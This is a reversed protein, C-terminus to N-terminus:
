RSAADRFRGAADCLEIAVRQIVGSWDGIGTQRFLRATPYWPSDDRDLLWRWDPVHHLLIWVPKGLAGALHVVSTDSSIVLDLHSIIAATDAFSEIEEGLPVVGPHRRLIEADGDRLDKQLAFFQVGSQALLPLMRELGISRMEDHHFTPNGAWNIGVKLGAANALRPRWKALHAAPASLYPVEAPLNELTVDLAQPLGMLPCYLDFAPSPEDLQTLTVGEIQELLPRMAPPADLIVRAGRAIVPRVFRAAMITDGHGQESHLLLTKGRIDERGTWQPRGCAHWHPPTQTTHWRREYDPWGERWRGLQLHCLGRNWAPEHYDPQVALARAFDALADDIRGLAMLTTGHNYIAKAYDPRLAIARALPTLAAEFRGLEYLVTGQNYFAEAYDPKLAIAKEYDPLAEEHLGLQQRLNGRNNFTDANDPKLALARDYDALAADAQGMDQYVNGRNNVAEVLNPSLSIALDLDALAEDLRGLDRLVSGRCNLIASDREGKLAIAKDYSALAEDFRKLRKLANGRNLHADAVRSNIKLAADIQRVAELCNGRQYAIVGLLHQCDFSGPRHDLVRRYLQEAEGLLGARHFALAQAFISELEALTPPLAAAQRGGQGALQVQSPKKNSM